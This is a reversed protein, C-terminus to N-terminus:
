LGFIAIISMYLTYPYGSWYILLISFSFAIPSLIRIIGMKQGEFLGNRYMTELSLPGTAYAIISFGSNISVRSQWSPFPLIFILMIILDFLLAYFPVGFRNLKKFLSPLFGLDGLAYVVRATSTQYINGTGLPSIVGDILLITALWTLGLVSALVLMPGKVYQSSSISQWNGQVMNGWQFSAIFALQVTIYIITSIIVSLIIARPLTKEPNKAEGALGVAQRFGLFSFAIGSLPITSLITKLYPGQIHFNAFNSWSFYTILFSIFATMPIIIKIFTIGFNFKSVKSIGISNIIFFGILLLIVAIVGKKTLLGSFNIFGGMIFNLYTLAAINEFPPTSVYGM